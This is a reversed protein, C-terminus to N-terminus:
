QRIYSSLHLTVAATIVNPGGLVVIRGPRLRTLEAQVAAPIGDASVLLVPGGNMAAAPAGSLADPFGYGNAIYAVAVGPAYSAASIAASTAFRDVGSLRQASVPAPTSIAPTIALPLFDDLTPGDASIYTVDVNYAGVPTDTPVALTYSWPISGAPITKTILVVGGNPGGYVLPGGPAAAVPGPTYLDIQTAYIFFHPDTAQSPGGGNGIIVVSGGAPVTTSSLVVGYDGPAAYAATPGLMALVAASAVVGARIKWSLM